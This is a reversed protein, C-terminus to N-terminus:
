AGSVVHPRGPAAPVAGRDLIPRDGLRRTLARANAPAHPKGTNDFFVFEDRGRRGGSETVM